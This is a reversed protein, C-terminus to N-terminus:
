DIIHRLKEELTIVSKNWVLNLATNGIPLNPFPGMIGTEWTAKLLLITFM